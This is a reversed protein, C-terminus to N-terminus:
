IIKALKFEIKEIATRLVTMEKEEFINFPPAITNKILGLSALCGKIGKLYSSGFSGLDYINISIDMVIDQLESIRDFDKSHSANYLAVYLEPFLNSGGNVGGNAGMLVAESTVEEPGMFLAFGTKKLVHCLKKFYIIDSSSNKLGVINPHKSLQVVTEVEINTKTHMPMNYLFLPLPVKNALLKYYKLLEISGLGYYYPPTAVVATAGVEKSKKALQISEEVSTDSIGVFVPIRNEVIRCSEVILQTRTEYSLNSAEGTSGLILIGHVGGKIIHEILKDLSMIDLTSNDFMLPTVLPTIIGNIM